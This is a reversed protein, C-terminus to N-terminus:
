DSYFREYRMLLSLICAATSEQIYVKAFQIFNKMILHAENNSDFDLKYVVFIQIICGVCM